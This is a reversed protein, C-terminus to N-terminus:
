VQLSWKEIHSVYKCTGPILVCAVKPSWEAEGLRPSACFGSIEPLMGSNLLLLLPLETVTALDGQVTGGELLESVLNLHFLCCFLISM